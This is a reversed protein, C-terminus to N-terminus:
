LYQGFVAPQSLTVYGCASQTAQSEINAVPPTASARGLDDVMSPMLCYGGMATPNPTYAPPDGMPLQSLNASSQIDPLTSQEM